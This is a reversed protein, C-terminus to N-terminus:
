QKPILEEGVCPNSSRSAKGCTFIGISSKTNQRWNDLVGDGGDSKEFRDNQADCKMSRNQNSLGFSGFYRFHQNASSSEGGCRIGNLTWFESCACLWRGGSRCVERRSHHWLRVHTLWRTMLLITPQVLCSRLQFHVATAKMVSRYNDKSCHLLEFFAIKKSQPQKTYSEEWRLTLFLARVVRVISSLHKHPKLHKLRFVLRGEAWRM